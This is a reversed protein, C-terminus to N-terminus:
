KQISELLSNIKKLTSIGAKGTPRKIGYPKLIDDSYKLQFRNVADQTAKDFLGNIFLQENEYSNLFRQLKVVETPHNHKATIVSLLIPERLFDEQSLTNIKVM